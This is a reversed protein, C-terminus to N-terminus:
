GFRHLIRQVSPVYSAGFLLAHVLLPYLNCIDARSKWGSSLPYVNEYTSYFAAPISDFLTMFSLEMERHAFHVAPDILVPTNNEDALVNGGWLDGHILASPEQPFIEPLRNAMKEACKADHSTLLEQDLATKVLPSIRNNWFFRSWDDEWSNKQPLSGIFNDTEWGFRPHSHTHLLALGSGLLEWFHPNRNGTAIFEMLLFAFGPTQDLSIIAPTRLTDTYALANLGQQEALLGPYHSSRNYKLFYSGGETAIRCAQHISGGSVPFVARVDGLRYEVKDKVEDPLRM